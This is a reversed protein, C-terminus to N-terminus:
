IAGLLALLSRCATSSITLAEMAQVETMNWGENGYYVGVVAGALGASLGALVFTTSLLRGGDVGLLAATHPDDAYARWSLGFRTRTFIWLMAAAAALVIIVVAIQMATV